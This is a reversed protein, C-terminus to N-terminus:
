AAIARRQLDDVVRRATQGDWLSIPANRPRTKESVLAIAVEALADPAVLKNTGQSITIPRETSSRLTLCPIGLYTTEEQVGGSDTIVIVAHRTLAMFRLYSLPEFLRVGQAELVQSLGFIDLLKRTRPHVPFVLLTHRAVACLAAVISRLTKECDVNSPRHLTVLGYGGPEVGLEAEIDVAEITPRMLEFADIMINGVCTIRETSVGESILNADADPSPTWLVDAISDTVIRNIEEPMTRDASRLGAELHAVRIGTKVAVLAAALTSNVDGVVVTWDPRDDTCVKEYALMVKATQEAHSGSGVDLFYNPQGLGLDRLFTGSMSDDYHQGTHVLRLDCWTSDRLEHWLPAVKMFNPRAGAILHLKIRKM